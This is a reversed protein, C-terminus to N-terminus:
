HMSQGVPPFSQLAFQAARRLEVPHAAATEYRLRELYRAAVSGRNRAIAATINKLDRPSTAQVAMSYLSALSCEDGVLGLIYTGLTFYGNRAQHALVADRARAPCRAVLDRAAQLFPWDSGARERWLQPDLGELEAFLGPLNDAEILRKFDLYELLSSAALAPDSRRALAELTSRLRDRRGRVTAIRELALLIRPDRSCAVPNERFHRWYVDQAAELAGLAELAEGELCAIEYELGLDGAEDPSPSRQAMVRARELYRLARGPSGALLHVRALEAEIRAAEVAGSSGRSDFRARVSQLIRLAQPYDGARLALRAREGASRRGFEDDAARMAAEFRRGAGAEDGLQLQLHAAEFHCRAATETQREALADLERILDPM